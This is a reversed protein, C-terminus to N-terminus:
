TSFSVKIAEQWLELLSSDMNINHGFATSIADWLGRVFHCELFLHHLDEEAPVVFGVVPLFFRVEVHLAVDSPIRWHFLHWTLVYRSHPIFTM